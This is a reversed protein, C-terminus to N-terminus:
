LMPMTTSRQMAAGVVVPPGCLLAADRTSCVLASSPQTAANAVSSSQRTVADVVGDFAADCWRRGDVPTADRSHRSHEMVVDINHRLMAAPKADDIPAAQADSNM